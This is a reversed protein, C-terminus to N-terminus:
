HTEKGLLYVQHGKPPSPINRSMVISMMVNMTSHLKTIQHHNYDENQM